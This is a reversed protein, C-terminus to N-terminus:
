PLVKTIFTKMAELEEKNTCHPLNQYTILKHNTVFNKLVDSSSKGHKEYDVVLDNTGHCQLIPIDMNNTAEEPFKKRLPLWCSLVLIGALPKHYTLAAYLALSGGQSFGGLLVKNSPIRTKSLEQDLLDHVLNAARRIVSENEGTQDLSAMDFWASTAFGKMLTFPIKNATPCIIKTHPKCLKELTSAWYNGTEGLGHFFVVTTSHKAAPPITVITDTLM